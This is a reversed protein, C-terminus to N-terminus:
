GRALAALAEGMAAICERMPLLKAVEPQSVILVKM